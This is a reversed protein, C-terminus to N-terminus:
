ETRPQPPVAFNVGRLRLAALQFEPPKRGPRAAILARRERLKPFSAAVSPFAVPTLRQWEQVRLRSTKAMSWHLDPQARLWMKLCRLGLRRARRAPVFFTRSAEVSPLQFSVSQKVVLWGFAWSLM